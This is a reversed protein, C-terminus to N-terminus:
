IIRWRVFKFVSTKKGNKKVVVRETSPIAIGNVYEKILSFLIYCFTFEGQLMVYFYFFHSPNSERISNMREVIERVYTYALSYVNSADASPEINPFQIDDIADWGAKQEESWNVVPHNSLNFLYKVVLM